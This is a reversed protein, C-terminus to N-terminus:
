QRPYKYSTGEPLEVGELVGVCELVSDVVGVWEFVSDVVGVCEFVSLEVSLEVKDEVGVRDLVSDVM